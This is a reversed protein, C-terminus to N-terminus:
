VARGFFLCDDAFMLHSIIPADNRAMKIGHFSGDLGAHSIAMSLAEVFLIFLYSSLSDGQRIGRSPRFAAMYEGNVM